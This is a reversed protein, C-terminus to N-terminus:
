KSHDDKSVWEWMKQVEFERAQIVDPPDQPTSFMLDIHHAGSPIVLAHVSSSINQVVGGARWPDLGGNSFVVNELKSVDKSALAVSSWSQRPAVNWQQKCGETMATFNFVSPPLFMDKSGGQNSPMVMETCWQYGWDGTCKQDMDAGRKLMHHPHHGMKASVTSDVLPFCAKEHTYNYFVNMAGHLAELLQEDSGVQLHPASLPKCAVRVPYAPLLGYNHIIYGSPYPYDGMAMYSWANQTWAIVDEAQSAKTLKDCLRLQKKMLARGTESEMLTFIRKQVTIYNNKCADSCGGPSSADDAIINNFAYYDYPPSLDAFSWIPASGAILGDITAPYHRKFYTGLMGGYSGGFGVVRSDELNYKKKVHRIIYADDAMAQESTLWNMCNPTGPEFPQSKGYYRHEGFVLLAKFAPANEWMLGTHNVYLTVDDENGFYFFIPTDEQSSKDVFQDCVFYRQLFTSPHNPVSVPAFNFHDIQQELYLETCNASTPTQAFVTQTVSVCVVFLLLVLCM